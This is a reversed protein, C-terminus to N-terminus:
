ARAIHGFRSPANTPRQISTSSIESHILYSLLRSRRGVVLCSRTPRPAPQRVVPGRPRYRLYKLDLGQGRCYDSQREGCARWAAVHAAWKARVEASRQARVTGKSRAM